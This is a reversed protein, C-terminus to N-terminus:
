NSKRKVKDSFLARKAVFLKQVCVKRQAKKPFDFVFTRMLFHAAKRAPIDRRLSLKTCLPTQLASAARRIQHTVFFRVSFEGKIVTSRLCYNVLAIKQWQWKESKQQFMSDPRTVDMKCKAYVRLTPCPNAELGRRM